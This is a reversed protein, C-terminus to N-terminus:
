GAAGGGVDPRSWATSGPRVCELVCQRLSIRIRHMEIRLANVSKGFEVALQRHDSIKTSGDEAYYRVILQRARSPLKALCRDLCGHVAERGQRTVPDLLPVRLSERRFAERRSTERSARRLWEHHVNKAVGFFYGLRRASPEDLLERCRAAVRLITEVALDDADACGRGAFFAGLRHVTETYRAQAPGDRDPGARARRDPDLFDFLDEWSREDLRPREGEGAAAARAASSEDPEPENGITM